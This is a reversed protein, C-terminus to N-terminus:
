RGYCDQNGKLRLTVQANQSNSRTTLVVTRNKNKVWGQAELIESNSSAPTPLNESRYRNDSWTSLASLTEGPNVPIGGRGSDVLSNTIQTSGPRCTSSFDPSRPEIPLPELGQDPNTGPTDITVTGQAGQASSASINSLEPFKVSDSFGFINFVGLRIQGGQGGVANATIDNNENPIAVVLADPSQINVNGGNGGAAASGSIESKNMLLLLSKPSLLVNGGDAFTTKAIISGQNLFINRSNVNINGGNGNGASDVAIKATDSISLRSTNLIIDGGRGSSNPQASSVFGSASGISRQVPPLNMEKKEFNPDFGELDISEDANVEIKGAQGPGETASIIQSGGSAKVINASITINGANGGPLPRDALAQTRTDIRGGEELLVEKANINISGGDNNTTTISRIRSGNGNPSAGSITVRDAKKGDAGSIFISGAMKGDTGSSIVAGDTVFLKSTAINVSGANGNTGTFTTLASPKGAEGVNEPEGVGAIEVFDTATINITGANGSGGSINSNRNRNDASLQAGDRVVISSASINIVGANGSGLTGVYIGSEKLTQPASILVKDKVQIDINGGLTTTGALPTVTITGGELVSLNQAKITIDGGILTNGKPVDALIISNVGLVKVDGTSDIIVNGSKTNQNEGVSQNLIYARSDPLNSLNSINVDRAQIRINGSSENINSISTVGNNSLDNQVYLNSRKANEPLVITQEISSDLKVTGSESIGAIELSSQFNNVELISNNILVDGGVVVLNQKIKTRDISGLAVQANNFRISESQNGIQLGVPVQMTLLPQQPNVTSFVGGSNAFEIGNATSITLSGGKLNLGSGTGFLIGNPNIFYLNASGDVGLVGNISSPMNGTVRAFINTVGIPNVFVGASDPAIDFRGFSHFLNASQSFRLGGTILGNSDVVSGNAGLTNDPVIQAQANLQSFFSFSLISPMLVSHTLRYFPHASM